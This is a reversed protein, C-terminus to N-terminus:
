QGELSAYAFVTPFSQCWIVVSNYKSLDTGAPIAYNQNGNNAKLKGLNLGGSTYDNASPSLYVILDPGNTVSFNALRINLSGDALRQIEAQGSGSHGPAGDRFAGKAVVGPAPAPPPATTPTLPLLAPTAPATTAPTLPLPATPALAPTAPATTAAPLLTAASLSPTVLTPTAARNTEVAAPPEATAARTPGANPAPTTGTVSKAAAIERTATATGSVPASADSARVAANGGGKCDGEVQGTLLNAENECTQLFLDGTFEYAIFAFGATFVLVFTASLFWPLRLLLKTM